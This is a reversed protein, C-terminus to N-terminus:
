LMCGGYKNDVGDAMFLLWSLKTELKTLYCCIKIGNKNVCQVM